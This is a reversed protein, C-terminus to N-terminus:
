DSFTGGRVVLAPYLSKWFKGNWQWKRRGHILIQSISPSSSPFKLESTAEALDEWIANDAFEVFAAKDNSDVYWVTEEGTIPYIWVDGKRPHSPATSKQSSKIGSSQPYLSIV